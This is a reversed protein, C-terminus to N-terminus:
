HAQDNLDSGTAEYECQQNVNVDTGPEKRVVCEVVYAFSYLGHGGM